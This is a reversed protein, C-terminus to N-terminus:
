AAAAVIGRASSVIVNLTMNDLDDDTLFGGFFSSPRSTEDDADVMHADEHQQEQQNAQARVHDDEFKTKRCFNLIGSLENMAQRVCFTSSSDKVPHHFNGMPVLLSMSILNNLAVARLSVSAMLCGRQTPTKESDWEHQQQQQIMNDISNRLNHIVIDYLMYAKTHNVTAATGFAGTHRYKKAARHHTAALNYVICCCCLVSLNRYSNRESTNSRGTATGHLYESISPSIVMLGDYMYIAQSEEAEGDNTPCSVTTIITDDLVNSTDCVGSRSNADTATPSQSLDCDDLVAVYTKLHFLANSLLDIVDDENNHGDRLMTVASSNLQIAMDLPSRDVNSSIPPPLSFTNLSSPSSSSVTRETNTTPSTTNSQFSCM